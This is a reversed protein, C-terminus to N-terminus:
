DSKSCDFKAESSFVMFSDYLKNYMSFDKRMSFNNFFDNFFYILFSTPMLFTFSM